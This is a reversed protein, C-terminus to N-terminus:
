KIKADLIYRYASGREGTARLLLQSVGTVDVSYENMLGNGKFEITKLLVGDGYVEFVADSQSFPTFSFLTYEGQLNYYLEGEYTGCCFSLYPKYRNGGLTISSDSVVGANDKSSYPTFDEIFDKEIGSRGVFVSKTTGEWDINIDLMNSVARIPVYTTGQYSIPYVEKGNADQMTQLEGNYYIKVDHNLYAKIEELGGTAALAVTALTIIVCVATIIVLTKNKKM